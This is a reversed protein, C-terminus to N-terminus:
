FASTSRTQKRSWFSVRAAYKEVEFFGDPGELKYLQSGLL